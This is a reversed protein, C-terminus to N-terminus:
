EGDKLAAEAFSWVDLGDDNEAIRKLAERLRDREKRLFEIEDIADVVVDYEKNGLRLEGLRELIDM